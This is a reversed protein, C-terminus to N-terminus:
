KNKTCFYLLFVQQQIAQNDLNAQVGTSQSSLCCKQLMSLELQCAAKILDEELLHADVTKWAVFQYLYSGWAADFEALQVAFSRTTGDSNTKVESTFSPTSPRTHCMSGPGNVITSVLAEFELVLKLSAKSLADEREGKASFVAEPHGLIMYACLFVRVPYRDLRKEEKNRSSGGNSMGTGCDVEKSDASTTIKCAEATEQVHGRSSTRKASGGAKRNVPFLRKLLHDIQAINSRSASLLFFRSELRTLLARVCRLNLPSTIRAVVQEFPLSIVGHQNISCAVFDGALKLTTQRSRQFQRWCSCVLLSYILILLFAHGKLLHM